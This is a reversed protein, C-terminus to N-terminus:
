VIYRANSISMWQRIKMSLFIKSLFFQCQFSSHITGIYITIINHINRIITNLNISIEHYLIPHVIIGICQTSLIVGSSNELEFRFTHITISYEWM